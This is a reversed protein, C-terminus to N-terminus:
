WYYYQYGPKTEKITIYAKSPVDECAELDTDFGQQELHNIVEEDVAM